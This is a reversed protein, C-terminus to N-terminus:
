THSGALSASMPVCGPQTRVEDSSGCPGSTEPPLSILRAAESDPGLLPAEVAFRVVLM